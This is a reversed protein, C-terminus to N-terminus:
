EDHPSLNFFSHWKWILGFEFLVSLCLGLTQRWGSLAEVLRVQILFFGAIIGIPISWVLLQSLADTPRVPQATYFGSLQCVPANLTSILAQALPTHRLGWVDSVSQEAHCLVLDGPCWLGTVAQIWNRDFTLKVEVQVRDDRTVAALTALRRRLSPERSVDQCLALFLVAHGRPSAMTWIRRALEVDDTKEDPILVVFRQAPPLAPEEPFRAASPVFLLQVASKKNLISM